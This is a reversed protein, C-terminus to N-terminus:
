NEREHRDLMAVFEPRSFILSRNLTEAEPNLHIKFDAKAGELCRKLVAASDFSMVCGKIKERADLYDRAASRSTFIPVANYTAGDVTVNEYLFAISYPLSLRVTLGVAISFFQFDDNM